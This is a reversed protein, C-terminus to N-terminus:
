AEENYPDNGGTIKNIRVHLRRDGKDIKDEVRRVEDHIFERLDLISQTQTARIGELNSIMAQMMEMQSSDGSELISLRTKIQERESRSMWIPVSMAALAVLVQWTELVLVQENM